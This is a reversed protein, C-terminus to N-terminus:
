ALRRTMEGRVILAAGSTALALIALLAFLGGEGTLALVAGVLIPATIGGVLGSAIIMPGIRPDNGLREVACVFFAPFNMGVFVGALVYFLGPSLMFAGLACVGEGILALILLNFPRLLPAVWILSLRALLFAVFFLSTLQAARDESLGSIVLASPGLGIICAEFGIALAGFVLIGPRLGAYLDPSVAPGSAGRGGAFPAVVVSVVAILGFVWRPDNAFQLLVLPAGIAGVCFIANLLGVMSPGRAGFAHLFRPNFIAAVAGYGAGLVVAGALMLVWTPQLALAAAGLAMLILSLPASLLRPRLIMTAVAIFAGVWHASILVGASKQSLAFDRMYVPLSPGYLSQASGILVFATMGSILLGIPVNGRM